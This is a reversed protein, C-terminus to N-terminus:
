DIIIHAKVLFQYRHSNLIIDLIFSTYFNFQLFIINSRVLISILLIKFHFTLLLIYLKTKM